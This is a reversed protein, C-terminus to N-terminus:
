AIEHRHRHLLQLLYEVHVDNGNHEADAGCHGASRVLPPPEMTTVADVDPM